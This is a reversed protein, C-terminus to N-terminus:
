SARGSRADVECALGSRTAGPTPMSDSASAPLVSKSVLGGIRSQPVTCVAVSGYRDSLPVLM